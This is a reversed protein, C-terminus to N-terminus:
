ARACSRGRTRASFSRPGTPARRRATRRPSRWPPARTPPPAPGPGPGAAPRAGPRPPPAAPPPTASKQCSNIGLAAGIAILLLVAVQALNLRLQWPRLKQEATNSQQTALKAEHEADHLSEQKQKKAVRSAVILETAEHLMAVKDPDLLAVLRDVSGKQGSVELRKLTDAAEAIKENASRLKADAIDGVIKEVSTKMAELVEEREDNWKHERHRDAREVTATRSALDQVLKELTDVRRNTAMMQNALTRFREEQSNILGVLTEHTSQVSALLIAVREDAAKREREITLMEDLRLEVASVLAVLREDLMPSKGEGLVKSLRSEDVEGGAM